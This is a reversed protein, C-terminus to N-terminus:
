YPRFHGYDLHLIISNSDMRLIHVLYKSMNKRPVFREDPEPSPNYMTFAITSFSSPSIVKVDDGSFPDVKLIDRGL